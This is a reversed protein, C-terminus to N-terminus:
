FGCCCENASSVVIDLGDVLDGLAAEISDELQGHFIAEL